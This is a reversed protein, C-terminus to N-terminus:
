MLVKCSASRGLQIRWTCEGDLTRLESKMDCVGSCKRTDIKMRSPITFQRMGCKMCTDRRGVKVGKTTAGCCLSIDHVRLPM